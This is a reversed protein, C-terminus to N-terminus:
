HLYSYLGTTYTIPGRPISFRPNLLFSLAPLIWRCSPAVSDCNYASARVRTLSPVIVIELKDVDKRSTLSICLTIIHNSFMTVESIFETPSANRAAFLSERSYNRFDQYAESSAQCTPSWQEFRTKFYGGFFFSLPTSESGLLIQHQTQSFSPLSFHLFHRQLEGILALYRLVNYKRSKCQSYAANGAVATREVKASQTPSTSYRAQGRRWISVRM